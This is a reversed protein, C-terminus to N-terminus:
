LQGFKSIIKSYSLPTFIYHTPLNKYNQFKLDFKGYKSSELNLNESITLLSSELLDSALFPVPVDFNTLLLWTMLHWTMLDLYPFYSRWTMLAM